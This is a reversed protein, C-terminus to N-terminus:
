RIFKLTEGVRLDKAEGAGVELTHRAGRFLRGIHWPKVTEIGVICYASDCYVVDITMKMFFCHISSCNEFWVGEGPDLHTVGMLGKFRQWFTKAERINTFETGNGNSVIM